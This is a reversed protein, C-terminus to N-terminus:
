ITQQVIESIHMLSEVVAFKEEQDQNHNGEDNTIQDESGQDNVSAVIYIQSPQIKNDMAKSNLPWISTAKLGYKMKKTYTITELNSRSM